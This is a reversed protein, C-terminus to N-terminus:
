AFGQELTEQLAAIAEAGRLDDDFALILNIMDMAGDMYAAFYTARDISLEKDRGVRSTLQSRWESHIHAILKERDFEVAM